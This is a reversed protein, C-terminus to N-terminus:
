HRARGSSISDATLSPQSMNGALPPLLPLSPHGAISRRRCYVACATKSGAAALAAPARSAVAPSGAKRFGQLCAVWGSLVARKLHFYAWLDNQAAAVLGRLESEQTSPTELARRVALATRLHGARWKDFAQV